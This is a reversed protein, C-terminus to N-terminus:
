AASRAAARLLAQVRLDAVFQRLVREEPSWHRRIVAAATRIEDPSPATPKRPEIQERLAIM